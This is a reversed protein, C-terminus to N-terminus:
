RPVLGLWASFNRGSSFHDMQPAFTEIAMSCIPGIGPITQLLRSTKERASTANLKKTLEGVLSTLIKIQNIYVRSMDRALDPLDSSLDDIIAFLRSIHGVGQPAIFGFEALHARLGNILETKQGILKERTRFLMAQAQQEATKAQVFRMTPRSAAEAIAQADAADNKQRRVFPKVYIPAILKATHGLKTMERSWYHSTACAEMAVICPPHKAMFKYFQLRTLKKRFMVSGADSAGHIQFVNKALDVGIISVENM